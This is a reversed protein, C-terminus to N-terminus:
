RTKLTHYEATTTISQRRDAADQLKINPPRNLALLPLEYCLIHKQHLIRFRSSADVTDPRRIGPKERTKVTRRCRASWRRRAHFNHDHQIRAQVAHCRRYRVNALIRGQMFHPSRPAVVFLNIELINKVLLQQACIASPQGIFARSTVCVNDASPAPTRTHHLLPKPSTEICVTASCVNGAQRLSCLYNNAYPCIHSALKMCPSSHIDLDCSSPQNQATHMALFLESWPLTHSAARSGHSECMSEVGRLFIRGKEPHPRTRYCLDSTVCKKVKNHAGVLIFSVSKM